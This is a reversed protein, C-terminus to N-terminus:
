EQTGYTERHKKVSTGGGVSPLTDTTANFSAPLTLTVQLLGVSPGPCTIM